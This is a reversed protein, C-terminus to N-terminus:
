SSAIVEAAFRELGSPDHAADPFYAIVYGAGAAEWAALREAIQEPTGALVSKAMTARLEGARDEGVFPAMHAEYWDLREAVEAETEGVFASFFVSRTIEDFDRGVARCHEALVASKHRFQELTGGFNTYDALRAAVRLTRREGGGAVWTPIRPRQVPKPQNIAGALRHYRGEYVVEPEDGWMRHMIEVTEELRGIREGPSPFVYGYGLYEAEYWGAGIGMELRGGSIVDVNAAVKALYAPPRYAACTCMQGLRVTDTTAALAAMLTWAEYTVEQTAVPFTHFHDFVWLSEYGSREILRALGLMTQWHESRDIGALDLRWGQPIFAGYRM